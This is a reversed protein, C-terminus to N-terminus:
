NYKRKQFWRDNLSLSLQLNMFNEQVLNARTTGRKGIEFGINANSFVNGVPLGLGFSIGFENITEDNIELGTNEFRVGARYTVRKWYSSFSNYDPIFFGGFSFVTANVFEANDITFIPNDFQSYNQFTTEAGIFWKLPQGLGAGFTVKSPLTLDTVDLGQAELDAQITNFAFEQGTLSNITITSFSRQNNSKINSEPTYTFGTVLQLKDNLMTKYSLGFNLSLGSLDSRNDERTQYQTIEGEDYLFAISTNQINGFNYSADIGVSLGETIQYGLGAFVKNLGGEGRYRNTLLGDTDTAELKYGVSTYPMLGFGFGFKGMPVSLALYDFTTTSTKDSGSATKLDTSNYNGGITFRVPRSEDNFSKLNNGAYGAPNQLNVHVSDIYISLGGMSRNEVTGKFKLNGIGYFSYPSATGEQAQSQLAFLAIFVLVLKKIM